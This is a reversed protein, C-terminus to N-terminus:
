AEAEVRRRRTGALVRRRDLWLVLGAVLPLNLAFLALGYWANQPVGARELVLVATAVIVIYGLAAPVLVKWGLYMLQDYRFRPLTWRVWVYVWAFFAAKLTFAGLTLLFRLVAEGSWTTAVRQDWSTFPIDWGGFFLVAILGSMTLLAAYEALYFIAFKMASYEAHYGAVLESEAEPLDFPLRNTEAFAAVHFMLFAPLAALALWVTRQQFEIIDTLPVNGALLLVVVLCLGLALEYSVMQASARLGGLLAYKSNSSWGALVIGYVGV